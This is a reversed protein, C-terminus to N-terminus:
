QLRVKTSCPLGSTRQTRIAPIRIAHHDSLRAGRPQGLQQWPRGAVPRESSALPRGPQVRFALRMGGTRAGSSSTERWTSRAAPRREWRFAGWLHPTLTDATTSWTVVVLPRWTSTWRRGNGMMIKDGPCSADLFNANKPDVCEGVPVESWRRRASGEGMRSRGAVRARGMQLLGERRVMLGHDVPHRGINGVLEDDFHAKEPEARDTASCFAKFQGRTVDNRGIWYSHEMPHIHKPKEWDPANPDDTGMVFDGAPVAVMEMDSGDPLRFLYLPVQRGDAASVDRSSLRLGEPLKGQIISKM